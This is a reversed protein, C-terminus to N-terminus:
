RGAEGVRAAVGPTPLGVRRGRALNARMAWLPQGYGDPGALAVVPASNVARTEFPRANARRAARAPGAANREPSHVAAVPAARLARGPDPPAVPMAAAQPPDERWRVHGQVPGPRFAEVIENQLRHRPKLGAPLGM